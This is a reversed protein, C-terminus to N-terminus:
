PNRRDVPCRNALWYDKVLATGDLPALRPRWTLHAAGPSVSAQGRAHRGPAVRAADRPRDGPRAREKARAPAAPRRREQGGRRPRLRLPRRADGTEPSPADLDIARARRVSHCPPAAVAPYPPPPRPRPPSRGPRSPSPASVRTSLAQGRRHPLLARLVRAPRADGVLWVGAAPDLARGLAVDDLATVFVELAVTRATVIEGAVTELGRDTERALVARMSFSPEGGSLAIGGELSLVHVPGAIRRPRGSGASSPTSPAAAGRGRARRQSAALRM